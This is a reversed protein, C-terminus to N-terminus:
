YPRLESETKNKGGKKILWTNTNGACKVRISLSTLM